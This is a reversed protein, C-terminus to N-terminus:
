LLSSLDCEEASSSLLLLPLPLSCSCSCSCSCCWSCSCFSHLELRERGAVASPQGNFLFSLRASEKFEDGLRLELRGLWRARRVWGCGTREKEACTRWGSDLWLWLEVCVSISKTSNKRKEEVPMEVVVM